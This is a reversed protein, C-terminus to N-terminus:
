YCVCLAFLMIVKTFSRLINGAPLGTAYPMPVNVSIMVLKM